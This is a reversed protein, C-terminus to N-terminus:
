LPRSAAEARTHWFRMESERYLGLARAFESRGRTADGNHFYFQGLAFSSHAQLPIMELKRSLALAQGYLIEAQNDSSKAAVDGLLKLAWAHHGDERSEASLEFAKEALKKAEDIRGALLNVHGHWAIRLSQGAKRGILGTEEDAKEM